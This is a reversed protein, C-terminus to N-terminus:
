TGSTTPSRVPTAWGEPRMSTVSWSASISPNGATEAHLLGVVREVDAPPQSMRAALYAGVGARDLGTLSLREVDPQRVMDVIADNLAQTVDLATDRHNAVVLLRGPEGSRVLHTLMALTPASAWHIDEVVLVTPAEEALAALWAAVADFLRHRETEPDASLPDPLDPFRLPLDPVLRALEGGLRGLVPEGATRVYGGLAEMFPQYPVNLGEECRGHLVTANAAHAARALEVCRRTKGIGPEGGLLVVQRRGSRAVSWAAELRTMDAEPRVFMADHVALAAPLATVAAPENAVWRVACAEVPVALGKLLLGGLPEFTANARSGALASVLASVLVQGGEARACLRQAVVVPTGFFDDEEATPEGAHVGVRVALPEGDGARVSAASRQIDIAARVAAAPSAFAVMLGDGLNKVETGDHARVAERLAAFHRRRLADAADDGLRELLETSGVLDTFMFTVVGSPTASPLPPAPPEGPPPDLPPPAASAVPPLDQRLIAGELERLRASPELGLEEALTSRLDRYARLAEAQRGARYLATMRAAWLGERLPHAATLQVLEGILERARGCALDAEIRAELAGLRAETLRSAEAAAFPLDEIGQFAPGRWLDLAEAYGDAAARHDGDAARGEAERVLTEFRTADLADPPVALLYGPARTRLVDEAGGRALAKRLRYVYAQLASTGGGDPPNDPWLDAVLTDRATVQGPALLLRALVARERMGGLQLTRGDAVVEVTGLVLFEM